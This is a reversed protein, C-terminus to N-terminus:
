PEYPDPGQREDIVSFGISGGEASVGLDLGVPVWRGLGLWHM